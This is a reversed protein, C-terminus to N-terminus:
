STAALEPKSGSIQEQIRQYVRRYGVAGVRELDFKLSAIHACRRAIDPDAAIALAKRSAERYAASDFSRVIVGVAAREVLDDMDGVGHNCVVPLGAALYEPVKTPSAAIQSFTPKRFSIGLRAKRLYAPVQEATVPGVWFDNRSLGQSELVAVVQDRPSTTLMRLFVDPRESRLALFFRAMEELLYLGTAAGAYVVEFRSSTPEASRPGAGNFRSFDVCCPIVEIKKASAPAQEIIWDRMRETLVVLQDAQKIAKRELWKVSSFALSGEAWTGADAYEEAMLGRIDFVLRCGTWRRVIMAISMPVHARAHLVDIRHRRTIRLALRAGALIDYLTSLLKPRKHYATSYWRIGEAKLRAQWEKMERASWVHRHNPEFTLLSVEVGGKSLQRLYPLVQTQVLPERLGFYCLYLTRMANLYLSLTVKL